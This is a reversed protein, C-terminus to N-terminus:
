SPSLHVEAIIFQAFDLMDVFGLFHRAKGLVPAALIGHEVLLKFAEPLTEEKVVSLVVTRGCCYVYFITRKVSCPPLLFLSSTLDTGKQTPALEEVRTKALLLLLDDGEERVSGRHKKSPATEKNPVPPVTVTAEDEGKAEEDREKRKGYMTKEM